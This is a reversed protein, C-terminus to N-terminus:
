GDCREPAFSERQGRFQDKREDATLGLREYDAKNFSVAIHILDRNDPTGAGNTLMRDAGRYTLAVFM